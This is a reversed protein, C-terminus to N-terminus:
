GSYEQVSPYSATHIPVLAPGSVHPVGGPYALLKAGSLIRLWKCLKDQINRYVLIHRRTTQYWPRGRSMHSGGPYAILKAGSLIRLWKRLKDQINRYVLIHRRTSQYWTRGRSMHSGGPLSTIQGWEFNPAM